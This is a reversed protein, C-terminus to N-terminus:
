GVRACAGHHRIPSARIGPISGKKDGGLIGLFPGNELLKMALQPFGASDCTLRPDIEAGHRKEM